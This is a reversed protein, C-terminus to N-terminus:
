EALYDVFQRRDIERSLDRYKEKMEEERQRLGSRKYGELHSEIIELLIEESTAALNRTDLHDRRYAEEQCMAVSRILRAGKHEPNYLIDEGTSCDLLLWNGQLRVLALPIDVQLAVIVALIGLGLQSGRHYRLLYGLRHQLYTQERLSHEFGAIHFLYNMLGEASRQVGSAYFGEILHDLSARIFDKSYSGGFELAMMGAELQQAQSEMLLWSLWSNELAKEEATTCIHEWEQRVADSQSAAWSRTTPRLFHGFDILARKVEQRVIPSRDELLHLLFPLQETTPM